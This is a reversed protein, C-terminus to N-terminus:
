PMADLTRAAQDVLVDGLTTIEGCQDPQVAKPNTAGVLILM